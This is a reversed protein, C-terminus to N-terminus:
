TIQKNWISDSRYGYLYLAVYYPLLLCFLISAAGIKVGLSLTNTSQPEYLFFAYLTDWAIIFILFIKWIMANFLTKKYVYGFLGALGFLSFPLDIYDYVNPKNLFTSNIYLFGFTPVLLWFYVKYGISIHRSAITYRGHFKIAAELGRISLCIRILYEIMLEFGTGSTFVNQTQYILPPLFLVTLLFGSVRSRYQRLLTILLLEIFVTVFKNHATVIMVLLKLGVLIYLVLTAYNIVKEADDKTIIKKILSKM